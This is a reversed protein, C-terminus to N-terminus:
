GNMENLLVNTLFIFLKRLNKLILNFFFKSFYKSFYKKNLEFKLKM